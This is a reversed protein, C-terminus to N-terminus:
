GRKELEDLKELTTIALAVEDFHYDDNDKIKELVDRVLQNQKQLKATESDWPLLTIKDKDTMDREVWNGTAEIVKLPTRKKLEEYAAYEIVHIMGETIPEKPLDTIECVSDEYGTPDEWIEFERYDSM